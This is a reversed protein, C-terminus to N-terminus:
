PRPPQRSPLRESLERFRATSQDKVQRLLIVAEGPLGSALAREALALLDADTRPQLRLSLWLLTQSCPPCGASRTDATLQHLEHPNWIATELRRRWARATGAPLDGGAEQREALSGFLGAFGLVSDPDLEVARLHARSAETWNAERSRLEGLKLHAFFSRPQVRTAHDWLASSQRWHRSLRFSAAGEILLCTAGAILLVRRRGPSRGAWAAAAAVPWSLGLLALLQYRDAFRYYLPVLNAVPLLAGFCTVLAFRAPPPLRRWFLAAAAVVLLSLVAGAIFGDPVAPYLPSLRAPWLVHGLYFGFTGAVDVAAPLPRSPLLMQENRWLLTVLLSTAIGMVAAPLARLL